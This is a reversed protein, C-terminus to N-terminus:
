SEQTVQPGTVCRDYEIAIDVPTPSTILKTYIITYDVVVSVTPVLVLTLYFTPRSLM